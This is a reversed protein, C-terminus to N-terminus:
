PATQVATANVSDHAFAFHLTWTSPAAQGNVQPPTFKWRRAADLSKNAFYQSPGPSELDADTVNGSQDVTVTVAVAFHGSITRLAKEPVDLQAQQAVAGKAGAAPAAATVPAQAPAPPPPQVAPPAKQVPAAAPTTNQASQAPPKPAPAPAPVPLPTVAPQSAQVSQAAPAPAKQRSEVRWIAFAALLVGALALIVSLRRHAPAITKTEVAPTDKRAKSIGLEIRIESISCRATPDTHLCSRAVRAFPQPVTEPVSPESTITGEWHPTQQALMEVLTVGLSWVDAPAELPGQAMEPADYIAPELFTRGRAGAFVLGDATLKLQDGCAVINAPKLRSHVFGRSHLYALADLGPGLLEMAEHTTLPREKLIESLVEDAYESVVYVLPMNDIECRGYTYVQILNPHKLSSAAAWARMRSEADASDGPVLKVLAKESDRLETSYVGSTGNGGLWQLLPFKDDVVRGAWDSRVVAAEMIETMKDSGKPSEGAAAAM